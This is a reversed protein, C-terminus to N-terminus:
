AVIDEYTVDINIAKSRKLRDIVKRGVDEPLDQIYSNDAV